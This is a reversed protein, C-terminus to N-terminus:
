EWIVKDEELSTAPPSQAGQEWVVTADLAPKPKLPSDEALGDFTNAIHKRYRMEADAAIDIRKRVVAAHSKTVRLRQDIQVIPRRYEPEEHQLAKLQQFTEAGVHSETPQRSGRGRVVMVNMHRRYAVNAGPLGGDIVEFISKQAVEAGEVLNPNVPHTNRSFLVKGEAVAAPLNGLFTKIDGMRIDRLSKRKRREEVAM